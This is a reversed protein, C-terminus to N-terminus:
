AKVKLELPGDLAVTRRALLEAVMQLKPDATGAAIEKALALAKERPSNEAVTMLMGYIEKRAPFEKQLQRLGKEFEAIVVPMGERQHSLATREVGRVRITFREDESIGPEKLRAQELEEMRPLRNTNGLRVATDVLNWEARHADFARADSSFRTYFNKAKDAAEGALRGQEIRFQDTQEPTPEKGAWEAPTPPPVLAQQLENWAKDAEPIAPAANTSDARAASAILALFVGALVGTRWVRNAFQKKM